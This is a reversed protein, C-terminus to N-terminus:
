ECKTFGQQKLIIEAWTLDEPMTVKINDRRDRVVEVNLGCAEMASAEDTIKAGMSSAKRIADALQQAPFLQPTHALWLQSRDETANIRGSSEVRKVTDSCPVALIGGATVGDNANSTIQSIMKRVQEISVCPRAADHVLAWINADRKLCFRLGAMVSDVRENGGTVPFIKPHKSYPSKAWYHDDPHLVVVIGALEDLQLIKCLTVDLITLNLLPLYQKPRDSQMRSGIGAAPIVAWIPKSSARDNQTEQPSSDSSSSTSSM